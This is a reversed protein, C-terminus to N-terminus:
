PVLIARGAIRGAELDNFARQAEDLPYVVTEVEIDGSRALALVEAQDAAAGGYPRQVNVGWPLVEGELSANFPLGAPFGEVPQGSPTPSPTPTMSASPSPTPAAGSAGSGGSCAIVLLLCPALYFPKPM